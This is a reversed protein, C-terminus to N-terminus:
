TGEYHEEGNEQLITSEEFFNDSSSINLVKNGKFYFINMKM